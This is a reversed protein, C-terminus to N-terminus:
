RQKLSTAVSGGMSRGTEFNIRGDWRAHRLEFLATLKDSLLRRDPLRVPQNWAM